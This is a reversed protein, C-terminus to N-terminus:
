STSPLIWFHEGIPPVHKGLLPATLGTVFVTSCFLILATVYNERAILACSVVGIGFGVITVADARVGAAVMRSALPQLARNQLELLYRDM